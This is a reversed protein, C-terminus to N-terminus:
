NSVRSAAESGKVVSYPSLMLSNFLFSASVFTLYPGLSLDLDSNTMTAPVRGDWYLSTSVVASVFSLALFSLVPYMLPLPPNLIFRFALDKYIYSRAPTVESM